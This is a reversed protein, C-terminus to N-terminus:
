TYFYTYFAWYPAVSVISLICEAKKNKIKLSNYKYIFVHLCIYHKCRVALYDFYKYVISLHSNKVIYCLSFVVLIHM